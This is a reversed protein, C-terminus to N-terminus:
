SGNLYDALSKLFYGPEKPLTTEVSAPRPSKRATPAVVVAGVDIPKIPTACAGLMALLFVCASLKLGFSKITRQM